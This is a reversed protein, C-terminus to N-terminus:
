GVVTIRGYLRREAKSWSGDGKKPNALVWLWEPNEIRTVRYEQGDHTSRVIDGAKVPCADLKMQWIQADVQRLEAHLATKREELQGITMM